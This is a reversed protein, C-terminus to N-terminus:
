SFDFIVRGPAASAIMKCDLASFKDAKKVTLTAGSALAYAVMKLDLASYPTSEVVLNGGAQAIMKLDLASKTM